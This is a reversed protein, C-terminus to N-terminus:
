SYENNKIDFSPPLGTSLPGPNSNRDPWSKKEGRHCKTARNPIAALAALMLFHMDRQGGGGGVCVGRTRLM